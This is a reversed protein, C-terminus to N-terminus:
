TTVSSSPYSFKNIKKRERKQLYLQNSVVVNVFGNGMLCRGANRGMRGLCRFPDCVVSRIRVGGCDFGYEKMCKKECDDHM